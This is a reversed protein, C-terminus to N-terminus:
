MFGKQTKADFFLSRTNVDRQNIIRGCHPCRLRPIQYSVSYKTIYNIVKRDFGRKEEPRINAIARDIAKTDTDYYYDIEGTKNYKKIDLVGVGRIYGAYYMDYYNDQIFQDKKNYYAGNLFEAISPVKVRFFRRKNDVFVDVATWRNSMKQLDEPKYKSSLADNIMQQTMTNGPPICALSTADIWTSINKSCYNCDFTFLTKSPFTAHYVGFILTQMDPWATVNLWDNFRLAGISFDSLKSYIANCIAIEYAYTDETGERRGFTRLERSGMANCMCVYGSQLAVIQTRRNGDLAQRDFEVSRLQYDPTESVSIINRKDINVEGREKMKLVEPDVAEFIKFHTETFDNLTICEADSYTKSHALLEKNYKTEEEDIAKEALAADMAQIYPGDPNDKTIESPINEPLDIKTSDTQEQEATQIGDSSTVSIPATVVPTSSHPLKEPSTEVTNDEERNGADHNIFTTSEDTIESSEALEAVPPPVEIAPPAESVSAIREPTVVPTPDTEPVPDIDPPPAPIPTKPKEEVIPVNEKEAPLEPVSEVSNPIPDNPSAGEKKQQLRETRKQMEIAETIEETTHQGPIPPRETSVEMPEARKIVPPASPKTFTPIAPDPLHPPLKPADTKPAVENKGFKEDLEQKYREEATISGPVTQSEDFNVMPPVHEKDTM